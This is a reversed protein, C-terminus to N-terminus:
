AQRDVAHFLDTHQTVGEASGLFLFGGPSLAYHFVPFLRSQLEGNLYILLNRCSILDLHSFPPDRIVSHLSFICM